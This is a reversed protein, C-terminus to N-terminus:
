GPSKRELPAEAAPIRRAVLRPGDPTAVEGIFISDGKEPQGLDVDEDPLIAILQRDIRVVVRPGSRAWRRAWDKLQGYYPQQRWAKPFRPDVHAIMRAGDDILYLVIRSTTPKWADPLQPNELWLCSFTRCEDPRGLYISCGNPPKCHICQM